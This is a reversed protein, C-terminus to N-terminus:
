PKSFKEINRSYIDFYDTSGHSSFSAGFAARFDDEFLLGGEYRNYWNVITFPEQGAPILWIASEDALMHDITAQPIQIGSAQFDMLAAADLLYPQGSFALETRLFTVTYKTGDGYGMYINRGPNEAVIEAIDQAIGAGSSQSLVVKIGFFLALGAKITLAMLFAGVPAWFGYVSWNTTPRYAYVRSTILASLFALAPLFPLFHNPGSGTKSAAILILLAAITAAVCVLRYTGVWSRIGVSGQQWFLFLLLPTTIFLLFVLNQVILVPSLGHGAAAQLWVIYNILSVQEMSWYPLLATVGAALLIVLLSRFGDRDFFWALYPLFYIAGTIKANVAVGLAIGCITWSVRGPRTVCSYLGIAACATLFSDPKSWFSNNKLLVAVLSFYGLAVLCPIIRGSFRQRVALVIFVISVLLCIFGAMKAAFTGAGLLAYMWSTAIYPVPGYLFSYRETAEVSHYIQEGQAYLWSVIAANPEIHDIFTPSVLYLGAFLFHGAIAGVFVISATAVLPVAPTLKQSLPESRLLAALILTLPIFALFLLVPFGLLPALL